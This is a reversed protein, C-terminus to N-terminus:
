QTNYMSGAATIEPVQKNRVKAGYIQLERQQEARMVQARRLDSYALRFGPHAQNFQNVKQQVDGRANPEASIYEQILSKRQDTLAGQLNREATNREQVETVAEPRFGLSQAFLQPGTLKDAPILASGANNVVGQQSMAGAKVLDRIIHPSMGQIGGVPDGGLFKKGADWFNEGVNLWPGGFTELLSGLTSADSDTRLHFQYTSGLAMRQSLDVGLASPLGKSAVEGLETGFLENMVGRLEHDYTDGSLASAVTYPQDTLGMASAGAMLAGLAWKIPQITAGVAGAALLHTALVGTLTKLGIAREAPSKGKLAALGSSIMAGYVQQPYKMFQFMLPRMGGTLGNAQAMFLRPTNGYSYDNHTVNIAESAHDVAQAETMGDRLGLERAAIATMVRNNVEILHLMVRSADLVRASLGTSKGKSIDSLETAMSLDILNNDRLHQIMAQIPKADAGGAQGIHNIVQDTVTFSKEAAARSFLAKIGLGSEATERVLPSAIRAQARGLAAVSDSFGHRAGLWPASLVYPQAGRVFWHSPSTLMMFQTLSTGKRVLDSVQYPNRSIQDRLALERAFEGMRVASVQSEDRHTSVARQVEGQANALHRGYKLQSLYYSQSRGYQTFSRHQNEINVGRVNSRALERKRFSAEGLSRLYFDKVAIQAAPNTDLERLIRDLASGTAIGSPEKYLDAKLQVPSTNEEGYQAAMERQHQNAESKSEAMRVEKEVVGVRYTGDETKRVSVALTPDDARRGRMYAQAAESTDFEKSALARKSTVVYDGNRMLPFYPGKRDTINGIKALMDQSAGSLKDGFERQLGEQTDLGLKQISAADYKADFDRPSMAADEGKTLMAHLGNLVIQDTSARQEAAYYAKMTSYHEKLPAPLTAFDSRAADARGVNAGAVHSNSEHGAPLDAHFGYLTSDHMIRSLKAANDIGHTDELNSWTNSLKGVHEMSKANDAARKFYTDWYRKYPNGNPGEFYKSFQGSQQRPTMASLGFQGAGHTANEALNRMTQTDIGLSKTIRDIGNGVHAGEADHELNMGPLAKTGPTTAYQKGKFINGHERMIADLASFHKDTSKFGLIDAVISKFRGWVTENVNPVKVTDLFAKFEDNSYAEAVMEHIDNTRSGYHLQAEARQKVLSLLAELRQRVVPNADIARSTAVHLLEHGLTHILQFEPSQGKARLAEHADRNIHINPADPAWKTTGLVHPKMGEGYGVLSHADTVHQLATFLRHVPSGEPFQRLVERIVVGARVPGNEFHDAIAKAAGTFATPKQPYGLASRLHELNQEEPPTEARPPNLAEGTYGLGLEENHALRQPNAGSARLNQRKLETNYADILYQARDAPSKDTLLKIHANFQKAAAMAEAGKMSGDRLARGYQLIQRMYSRALVPNGEVDERGVKGLEAIAKEGKKVSITIDKKLGTRMAERAKRDQTNMEMERQSEVTAMLNEPDFTKYGVIKKQFKSRASNKQSERETLARRPSVAMKDSKANSFGRAEYSLRERNYRNILKEMESRTKGYEARIQEPSRGVEEKGAFHQVAQDFHPQLEDRTMTRLSARSAAPEPEMATPEIRELPRVYQRGVARKNEAFERVGEPSVRVAARAVQEARTEHPNTKLFTAIRREAMDLGAQAKAVDEASHATNRMVRMGALEHDLGEYQRQAVESRFDIDRPDPAGIGRWARGAVENHVRQAEATIRRAAEERDIAPSENGTALDRAAAARARLATARDPITETARSVERATGQEAQARQQVENERGTLAARRLVEAPGPAVNKEGTAHEIVEEPTGVKNDRLQTLETAAAQDKAILTGGKGDFNVLPVAADGAQDRVRDLLGSQRLSAVTDGPLFVGTRASQSSQLDHLQGEIDTFPRAGPAEPNGQITPRNGVTTLQGPVPQDRLLDPQNWDQPAAARQRLEDAVTRPPEAVPPMQPGGRARTRLPLNLQAPAPIPPTPGPRPPNMEGGRLDLNGQPGNPEQMGNPVPPPQEPPQAGEYHARIAAALDPRGFMESQQPPHELPLEGQQPAPPPFDFGMQGGAGPQPAAPRPGQELPGLQGQQPPQEQRTGYDFEAQQPATVHNETAAGTAKNEPTNAMTAHLEPATGLEPTKEPHLPGSRGHFAALGAGLAGQSVGAEVGARAAGVLDPARGSDYVHAATESAVYNTAGVGAGQAFQDAFGMGARKMLGAGAEGTLVPTLFRGALTAIAGSVLGGVVPAYRQAQQTLEQRAAQPDMGKDLLQAFMPSQQRLTNDDRAGIEQEINNSIAGISLGTQTAGVYALARNVMGAKAMVGMPLLMTLTSPAANAMQLVLAHTFDHAGGQWITQHPDLSTWQRAMLDTDQPTMSAKWDEAANGITRNVQSLGQSIASNPAIQNGAWAGLGTVQHALEGAGGVLAHGAGGFIGEKPPATKWPADAFFNTVVHPDVPPSGLAGPRPAVPSEQLMENAQQRVNQITQPQLRQPEDVPVDPLQLTPNLAM